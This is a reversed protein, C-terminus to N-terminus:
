NKRRNFKDYLIKGGVIAASGLAAGAAYRGIRTRTALKRADTKLGAHLEKRIGSADKGYRKGIKQMEKITDVYSDYSQQDSIPSDKFVQNLRHQAVAKKKELSVVFKGKHQLGRYADSQKTTYDSIQKKIGAKDLGEHELNKKVANEVGIHAIGAGVASGTGLLGAAKLYSNNLAKRSRPSKDKAGQKRFTAVSFSFHSLFIM